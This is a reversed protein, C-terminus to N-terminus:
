IFSLLVSIIVMLVLYLNFNFLLFLCYYHIGQIEQAEEKMYKPNDISLAKLIDTQTM